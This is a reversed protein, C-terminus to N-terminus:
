HAMGRLKERAAQVATQLTEVTDELEFVDPGVSSAIAKVRASSSRLKEKLAADTVHPLVKDAASQLRSLSGQADLARGEKVYRVIEEAAKDMSALFPLPDEKAMGQDHQAFLAAPFVLAAFLAILTFHRKKM